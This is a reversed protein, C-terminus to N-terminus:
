AKRTARTVKATKGLRFVLTRYALRAGQRWVSYRSRERLFRWPVPVEGIRLKAQMALKLLVLDFDATVDFETEGTSQQGTYATLAPLLAQVTEARLAKCGCQTDSVPLRLLTRNFATMLNSALQRIFPSDERRDSRAGYIVDKDAKLADILDGIAEVPTELDIDFLAWADGHAAKMGAVLASGKGNHPLRLVQDAIGEAADATGDSSGDDCLILEHGEGQRTLWDRMVKLNGAQVMELENFAPVIISIKM